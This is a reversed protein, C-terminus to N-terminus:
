TYQGGYKYHNHLFFTLLCLEFLLYDVGVNHRGEIYLAKKSSLIISSSFISKITFSIFFTIKSFVPSSLLTFIISISPQLRMFIKISLM